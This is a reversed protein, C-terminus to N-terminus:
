AAESSATNEAAKQKHAQSRKVPTTTTETTESPMIQSLFRAQTELTKETADQWSQFVNNAEKTWCNIPTQMPALQRASLSWADWAQKQASFWHDVMGRMQGSYDSIFGSSAGEPNGLRLATQAYDSQIKLACTGMEETFELMQKLADEGTFSPQTRGTNMWSDWLERQFHSWSEVVDQIETSTNM